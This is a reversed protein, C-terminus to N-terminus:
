QCQSGVAYQESTRRLTRGYLPLVPLLIVSAAVMAARVGFANGVGGLVPGGGTQGLADVQSQVSLVTARVKSHVFQNTWTGQIPYTLGRCVNFAVLVIIALSFNSTLAFGALTLIMLTYLAQLTRVSKRMDTLNLKRRVIENAGIGLLSITASILGFWAVADMGFLDPFTFHELLHATWLRDYGESYLGVFLGILLFDRLTPRARVIAFGEQVTERMSRWTEREERPTPTFGDEPMALVLLIGLALFLVGGAIIPAQLGFNALGVSVPIGILGGARGWQGGRLFVPGVNEAGVEDTIWAEHAGSTFTYGFGWLASGFAIAFFTPIAQVFFAVGTIFIGVIVSLRRSYVDAVVGTPIEFIFASGELATGVLVLQLPVLHAVEVQYVMNLTFIVGFAFSALFAHSYYITKADLKKM